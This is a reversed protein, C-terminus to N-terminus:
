SPYPQLQQASCTPTFPLQREMMKWATAPTCVVVPLLAALISASVSSKLLLDSQQAQPSGTATTQPDVQGPCCPVSAHRRSARVCQLLNFCVDESNQLWALYGPSCATLQLQTLHLWYATYQLLNCFEAADEHTAQEDLMSSPTCAPHILAAPCFHILMFGKHVCFSLLATVLATDPILATVLATDPISYHSLM